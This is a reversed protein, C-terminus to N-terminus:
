GLHIRKGDIKVDDEAEISAHGGKVSYAGSARTRVRGALLEDLDEVRRFSRKLREFVHTALTEMRDAVVKVQEVAASLQVGRYSAEAFLVEAREGVLKVARAGLRAETQGLALSPRASADGDGAELTVGGAGRCRIAGGAVLDINGQPAALALDGAPVSLLGRGLDPRYEFVLRGAPDRVEIREREGDTSVAASAGSRTTLRRESAPAAEDGLVGIVYCRELDEGTVLVHRGVEIRPLPSIAMVASLELARGDHEIRVVCRQESAVEVVAARRVYSATAEKPSVSSLSLKSM